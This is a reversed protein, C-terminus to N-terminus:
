MLNGPLGRDTSLSRGNRRRDLQSNQYSLKLKSKQCDNERRGAPGPSPNQGDNLKEFWEIVALNPNGIANRAM